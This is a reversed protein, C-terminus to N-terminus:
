MDELLMMKIRNDMERVFKDMDLAGDIYQDMLSNFQNGDATYTDIPSQQRAYLYPSIKERYQALMDETVYYRYKEFSALEKEMYDIQEQLSAKNEPAATELSTRLETLAEEVNQKDREYNPNVQPENYDPFLAYATNNPDINKLYESVYLAASDARTTRPNIMLVEVSAPLIPDGGQEMALPMPTMYSDEGFGSPSTVDYYMSFVASREWFEEQSEQDDYFDYGMTEYPDFEKFDIQELAKLFGRFMDTDFSVSGTQLTQWSVYYSMYRNLLARRMGIDDFLMVEPHDEGYDYQFNAVFDMFEPFSKPMDDATLELMELVRPSFSFANTYLGCPIAYLKGDLTYPELMAPSMREAIEMIAPFDNLPMAYGKAILRKVPASDSSLKLVDVNNEGSVMANTLAEIGDLWEASTTYTIDPHANIVARHQQSGYEGYIVVAGEALSPMDLGRITVGDYSSMLYMGSALVGVGSANGRWVRDPLYASLRPEGAMDDLTYVSAGSAFYIADKAADYCLGTDNSTLLDHLRATEGTALDYTYLQSPREKGAAEDYSGEENECILLVKGDKYACLDYADQKVERKVLAGTQMDMQVLEFTQDMDTVIGALGIMQGDQAVLSNFTSYDTYEATKYTMFDLNFTCVPAPAYAGAEDTLRLCEGTGSFLGYLASGDTFLASVATQGEERNEPSYYRTYLGEAITEPADMGPTWRMLADQTLIYATDGIVTAGTVSTDYNGVDRSLLAANQKEAALAQGCLLCLALTLTLVTTILKKM